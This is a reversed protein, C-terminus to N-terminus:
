YTGSARLDCLLNWLAVSQVGLIYLAQVEKKKKIVKKKGENYCIEDYLMYTRSYLIDICIYENVYIM